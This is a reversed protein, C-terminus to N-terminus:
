QVGTYELVPICSGTSTPSQAIIKSTFTTTLDLSSASAYTGSGSALWDCTFTKSSTTVTPISAINQIRFAARRTNDTTNRTFLGQLDLFESKGLPMTNAVAAGYNAIVTDANLADYFKAIRPNYKRGFIVVEAGDNADTGTGFAPTVGTNFIKSARLVNPTYASVLGPTYLVKGNRILKHVFPFTGGGYLAFDFGLITSSVTGFYGLVANGAIINSPGPGYDTGATVSFPRGKVIETNYRFYLRYWYTAAPITDPDTYKTTSSPVTAILVGLETDTIPTSSRYILTDTSVQNYNAWSITIAM